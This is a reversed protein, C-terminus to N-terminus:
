RNLKFTGTLNINQVFLKIYDDHFDQIFNSIMTRLIVAIISRPTDSMKNVNDSIDDIIQIMREANLHCYELGAIIGFDYSQILKEDQNELPYYGTNGYSQHWKPFAGRFCTFVSSWNSSSLFFFIQHCSKQCEINLEMLDDSTALLSHAVSNRTHNVFCSKFFFATRELNKPSHWSIPFNDMDITTADIALLPMMVAMLRMVKRSNLPPPDLLNELIGSHVKFNGNDQNSQKRGSEFDLSFYSTQDFIANANTDEKNMGQVSVRWYYGLM